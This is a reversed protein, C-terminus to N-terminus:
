TDSVVSLQQNFESLTSLCEAQVQGCPMEHDDGDHHHGSFGGRDMRGGGRGVPGHMHWEMVEEGLESSSGHGGHGRMHSAPHRSRGGGTLCPSQHMHMGGDSDPCDRAASGPLRLPQKAAPPKRGTRGAAAAAPSPADHQHQDKHAAEDASHDSSVGRLPTHPPTAYDVDPDACLVACFLCDTVCSVM